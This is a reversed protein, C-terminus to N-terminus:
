SIKRIVQHTKEKKPAERRGKSSYKTIDKIDFLLAFVAIGM